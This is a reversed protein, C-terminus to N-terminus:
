KTLIVTEGDSTLWTMTNGAVTCKVTMRYEKGKNTKGVMSLLSSSQTFTYEGSVTVMSDDEINDVEQSMVATFKGNGRFSFSVMLDVEDDALTGSWTGILPTNVEIGPEDAEKDDSCASFVVPLSAMIILTLFKIFKNM